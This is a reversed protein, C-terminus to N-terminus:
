CRGMPVSNPSIMGQIAGAGAKAPAGRRSPGIAALWPLALGAFGSLAVARTGQRGIWARAAAPMERWGM